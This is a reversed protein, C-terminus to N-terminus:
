RLKKDSEVYKDINETPIFYGEETFGDFAEL